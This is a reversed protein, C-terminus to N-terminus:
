AEGGDGRKRSAHRALVVSEEARDFAVALLVGALVMIAVTAVGVGVRGLADMYPKWLIEHTLVFWTAAAVVAVSLLAAVAALLGGNRVWM